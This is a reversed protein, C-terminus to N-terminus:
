APRLGAVPDNILGCSTGMAWGVDYWAAIWVSRSTRETAPTRAACPAHRLAESQMGCCANGEHM